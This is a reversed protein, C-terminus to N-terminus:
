SRRRVTGLGNITRDVRPDGVYEVTGVGNITTRLQETANVLATGAGDIEITAERSALGLARYTGAGAIAVRQTEAQGGVTVTAAGRLDVALAGTRVEAANVMSAGDVELRSLRRVTLVYRIPGGLPVSREPGLVLTGGRVESKLLPLVNEDAEVTLGEADGQTLALTGAGVLRVADFGAVPRAESGIRGSGVVVAPAPGSGPAVCAPLVVLAILGVAVLIRTIM